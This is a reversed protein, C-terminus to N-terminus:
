EIIYIDILRKSGIIPQLEIGFKILMMLFCRIRCAFEGELATRVQNYFCTGLQSNIVSLANMNESGIELASRFSAIAAVRDGTKLQREGQMALSMFQAENVDDEDDDADDGSSKSEPSLMSAPDHTPTAMTPARPAPPTAAGLPLIIRVHPM